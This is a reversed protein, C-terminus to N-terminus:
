QVTITGYIFAPPGSLACHIVEEIACCLLIAYATRWVQAFAWSLELHCVTFDCPVGPYNAFSNVMDDMELFCPFSSLM